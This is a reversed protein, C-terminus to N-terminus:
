TIALSSWPWLKVESTGGVVRAHECFLVSLSFPSLLFQFFPHHRRHALRPARAPEGVAQVEPGRPVDAERKAKEFLALPSAKSGTRRPAKGLSFAFAPERGPKSSLTPKYRNKNFGPKSTLNAHSRTPWSLRFNLIESPPEIFANPEIFFM